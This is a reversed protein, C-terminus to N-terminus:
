HKRDWINIANKDERELGTIEYYAVYMLVVFYISLAFYCISSTLVVALGGALIGVYSLLAFPILGVFVTLGLSFFKGGAIKVSSALSKPASLGTNFTHPAWIVFLSVLMSFLFYLVVYSVGLVGYMLTGNIPIVLYIVLSFIVDFVEKILVFTLFVPFVVWISENIRTFPNRFRLDGLRMHRDVTAILVALMMSYLVLVILKLFWSSGYGTLAWYIQLFNKSKFASPNAFVAIESFPLLVAGAVISPIVATLALIILTKKKFLYNLHLRLFKIM